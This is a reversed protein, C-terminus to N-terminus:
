SNLTAVDQQGIYDPYGILDKFPSSPVMISALAGFSSSSTLVPDQTIVM